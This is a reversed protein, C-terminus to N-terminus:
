ASQSTRTVYSLSSACVPVTLARFVSHISRVFQGSAALCTLSRRWTWHEEPYNWCVVHALWAPERLFRDGTEEVRELKVTSGNYEVPQVAMAAERDGASDFFLLSVGRSSPFMQFRLHPAASGLAARILPAPNANATVPKLLVFAYRAARDWDGERVWIQVYYPGDHLDDSEVSEEEESDEEEEAPPEQGEGSSASGASPNYPLDGEDDFPAAPQLAPTPSAPSPPSAPRRERGSPARRGEPSTRGVMRVDRAHPSPVPARAPEARGPMRRAPLPRAGLIGKGSDVSEKFLDGLFYVEDDVQRARATNTMPAPVASVQEAVSPGLSSSALMNLPDFAASFPPLTAPNLPTPPPTPTASPPPTTRPHFPVPHVPLRAAPTTATAAAAPIAPRRRPHPTQERDIAM